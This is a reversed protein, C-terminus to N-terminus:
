RHGGDVLEACRRYIAATRGFTQAAWARYDAPTAPCATILGHAASDIDRLVPTVQVNRTVTATTM